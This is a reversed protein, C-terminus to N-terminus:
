TACDKAFGQGDQGELYGRVLKAMVNKPDDFTHRGLAPAVWLGTSNVLTSQAVMDKPMAAPANGVLDEVLWDLVGYDPRHDPELMHAGPDPAELDLDM